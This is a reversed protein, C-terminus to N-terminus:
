ARGNLDLAARFLVDVASFMTEENIDFRENHHGAALDTGAICYTAQGGHRIVRDMFYTADESGASAHDALMVEDVYDSKGASDALRRALEESCKCDIAEGVTRFDYRVGYMDAAGRIIREAQEKVYANVESNEGRTEIKMSAHAAIVNRGSGAHLEGVNVRTSGGSHRSIAHLNIAANAAALLANRGEEPKAGAHSAIGKFTVDIKSTALFGNSAALFTRHPVGTGVHTAIFFDADDVVGAEAMSRAGRTGEEAPQFLIRVTGALQDAKEAILRALGLGISTHADHGCAHMSGDNVSRFGESQPVHGADESELIPLADMDVRFVTVPGPRGTKWDAAIGTYGDKFWDVTEPVAGNEKAWKFHAATEADTPKGMVADPEMVDLGTRVGFGLRLLEATVLSATRMELFGQEPHRHLDRRIEILDRKMQENLM